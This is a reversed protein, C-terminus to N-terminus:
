DKKEDDNEPEKSRIAYEIDPNRSCLEDTLDDYWEEKVAAVIFSENKFIVTLKNTERDLVIATIDEINYKSKIIGFSTKFIKDEISYYSQLLLSVLIVILAVPILFMLTYRIVPYVINAEESLNDTLIFFLNLGIAFVSLALGAYIFIKTTRTFKFKYVKM